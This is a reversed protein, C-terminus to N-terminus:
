IILTCDFAVFYESWSFRFLCIVDCRRVKILNATSLLDMILRFVGHRKVKLRQMSSECVRSKVDGASRVFCFFFFLDSASKNIAIGLIISKTIEGTTVGSNSGWRRKCTGPGLDASVSCQSFQEDVASVDSMM